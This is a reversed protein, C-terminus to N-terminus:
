RKTAPPLRRAVPQSLTRVMVADVKAAGTGVLAFTLRLQAPESAARIMRFPQWGYTQGVVIALAPGGLSDVVELGEGEAFPRDVRVWGTIEVVQNPDIPVPPSVIWVLGSEVRDPRTEGASTANLELCYKGHQPEIASLQASTQIDAGADQLHQWGLQTM